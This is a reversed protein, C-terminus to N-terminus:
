SLAEDYALEMADMADYLDTEYLAVPRVGVYRPTHSASPQAVGFGRAAPSASAAAGEDGIGEAQYEVTARNMLSGLTNLVNGVPVQQGGAQVTPSGAQGMAISMLAQLVAPNNLMGLLQAAANGSAPAPGPAQTAGPASAPSPVPAPRQGPQPGQLASLAGGGLAGILAGWPGAVSGAAAGQAAGQVVGPAYQSVTQGANRLWSTFDEVYQPAVEPFREALISEIVEPEADRYEPRLVERVAAYTPPRPVGTEVIRNEYRPM